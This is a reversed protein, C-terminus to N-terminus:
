GSLGGRAIESEQGVSGVREHLVLVARAKVGSQVGRQVLRRVALRALPRARVAAVAAFQRDDASQLVRRPPAALHVDGIAGAPARLRVVQNKAPALVPLPQRAGARLADPRRRPARTISFWGTGVTKM